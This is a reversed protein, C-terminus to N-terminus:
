KGGVEVMTYLQPAEFGPRILDVELEYEGPELGVRTVLTSWCYCNCPTGELRETVRVRGAEIVADIEGKLCCPHRLEHRVELGWPWVTVDLAPLPENEGRKVPLSAEPANGLNAAALCGRLTGVVENAALPRPAPAPAQVPEVAAAPTSPVASDPAPVPEVPEPVTACAFLLAAIATLLLRM